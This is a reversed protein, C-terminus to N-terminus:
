PTLYGEEYKEKLLSYHALEYLLGIHQDDTNQQNYIENKDQKLLGSIEQEYKTIIRDVDVKFRNAVIMINWLGRTVEIEKSEIFEVYDSLLQTEGSM